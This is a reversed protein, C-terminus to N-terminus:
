DVILRAFEALSERSSEYVAGFADPAVGFRFTDIMSTTAFPQIIAAANSDMKHSNDTKREFILRDGLFGYCEYVELVPYFDGKGYGANVLGTRGAFDCFQKVALTVLTKTFIPILHHRDPSSSFLHLQQAVAHNYSEALTAVASAVDAETLLSNLEMDN